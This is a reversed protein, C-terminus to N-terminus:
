CEQLPGLTERPPGRPTQPSMLEKTSMCSTGGSTPGDAESCEKRSRSMGSNVFPLVLILDASVLYTPEAMVVSVSM